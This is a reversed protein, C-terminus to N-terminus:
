SPDSVTYVLVLAAALQYVNFNAPLWSQPDM